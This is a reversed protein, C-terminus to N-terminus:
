QHNGLYYIYPHISTIIHNYQTYKCMIIFYSTSVHITINIDARVMSLRNNVGNYYYLPTAKFNSIDPHLISGM